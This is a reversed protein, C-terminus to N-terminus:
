ERPIAAIEFLFVFYSLIPLSRQHGLLVAGVSAQALGGAAQTEVRLPVDGVGDRASM